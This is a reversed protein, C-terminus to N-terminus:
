KKGNDESEKFIEARFAATYIYENKQTKELYSPESYVDVGDLHYGKIDFYGECLLDAINELTNMAEKQDTTKTLIQIQVVRQRQSDYFRNGSATPMPVVAISKADTSLGSLAIPAFLSLSAELYAKLSKYFEFM